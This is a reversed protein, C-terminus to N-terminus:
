FNGITLALDERERKGIEVALAYRSLREHDLQARIGPFASPPLARVLYRGPLVPVSFAGKTNALVVQSTTSWPQWLARDASFVVVSASPVPQGNLDLVTGTFTAPGQTFEVELRSNEADGFDTPVNTIDVGDLLVRSPWWWSGPALTYGCRLVHPGRAGRLTFTGHPAGDAQTSPILNM